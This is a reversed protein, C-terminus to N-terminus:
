LQKTESIFIPDTLTAWLPLSKQQRGHGKWWLIQWAWKCHPFCLQWFICLHIHMPPAHMLGSKDPAMVELNICPNWFLKACNNEKLILLFCKNLYTSPWPWVQLDFSSIDLHLKDWFGGPFSLLVERIDRPFTDCTHMVELNICPIWFLKACNNEELILLFCKNLYTSLWPWVQLDFSSINVHLKDPGYSRCKLM